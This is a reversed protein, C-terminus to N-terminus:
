CVEHKKFARIALPIFILTVIVYVGLRITTIDFTTVIPYSFYGFFDDQYVPRVAM